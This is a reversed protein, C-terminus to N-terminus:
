SGRYTSYSWPTVLLPVHYHDDESTITFRVPILDLFMSSDPNTARNRFYDGVNFVMEYVGPILQDGTLVPSDTRGDLNTKLTRLTTRKEGNIKVIQLTVDAAPAGNATDLIHTTLSAM